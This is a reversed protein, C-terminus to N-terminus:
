AHRRAPWRLSALPRVDAGLAGGLVALAHAQREPTLTACCDAPVVCDLKRVLADSATALLCVDTAVGALILRKAGLAGLLAELPSQYFASRAPKLVFLDSRRPRLARAVDGRPGREARRITERRESDWRGMHDNVYVLPVDHRRAERVLRRLSPLIKVTEGHLQGGEEGPFDQLLDVLLVAVRARRSSVHRAEAQRPM